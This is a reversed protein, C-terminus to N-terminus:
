IYGQYPFYVLSVHSIYGQPNRQDSTHFRQMHIHIHTHICAHIYTHIYMHICAHIHMGRLKDYGEAYVHDGPKCGAPPDLPQIDTDSFHEGNYFVRIIVNFMSLLQLCCQRQNSVQM